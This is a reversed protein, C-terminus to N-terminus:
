VRRGAGGGWGAPPVLCRPLCKVAWVGPSVCRTVCVGPTHHKHPTRPGMHACAHPCACVYVCIHTAHGRRTAAHPPRTSPAAAGRGDWCVCGSFATVPGLPSSGLESWRAEPARSVSEEGRLWPTDVGKGGKGWIRVLLRLSVGWKVVHVCVLPSPGQDVSRCATAAAPGGVRCSACVPLEGCLCAPHAELWCCCDLQRWRAASWQWM